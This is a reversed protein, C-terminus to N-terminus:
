NKQCLLLGAEENISLYDFIQLLEKVTFCLSKFKRSLAQQTIGLERALEQQSIGNRRMEGRVFDILRELRRQTPDLSRVRPM